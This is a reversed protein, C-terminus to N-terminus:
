TRLHTGPTSACPEPSSLVYLDPVTRLQLGPLSLVQDDSPMHALLLRGRVGPELLPMYLGVARVLEGVADPYGEFAALAGDIVVASAMVTVAAFQNEPRSLVHKVEKLLRKITSRTPVPPQAEDCTLQRIFRYGRNADFFGRSPSSFFCGSEIVFVVRTADFGFLAM